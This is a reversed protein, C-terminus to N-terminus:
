CQQLRTNYHKIYDLMGELRELPSWVRMSGNPNSSPYFEIWNEEKNFQSLRYGSQYLEEASLLGHYWESRKSKKM